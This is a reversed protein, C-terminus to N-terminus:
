VSYAVVPFICILLNALFHGQSLDAVIDYLEPPLRRVVHNLPFM